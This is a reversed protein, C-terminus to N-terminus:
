IRTANALMAQFVPGLEGPSSSIVKLVETTAAQQELAEDRERKLRDFHETSHDTSLATPLKRAKPRGKVQQGSEGRRQM